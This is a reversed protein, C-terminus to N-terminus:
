FWGDIRCLWGWMFDQTLCNTLITMSYLLIITSSLVIATLIVLFIKCFIYLKHQKRSGTVPKNLYILVCFYAIVVFFPQMNSYQWTYFLLWLHHYNVPSFSYHLLKWYSFFFILLLCYLLSKNSNRRNLVKDSISSILYLFSIFISIRSIPTLLLPFLVFFCM